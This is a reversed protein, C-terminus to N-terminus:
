DELDKFLDGPDTPQRLAERWKQSPEVPQATADLEAFITNRTERISDEINFVPAAETVALIEGDIEPVPVVPEADLDIVAAEAPKDVLLERVEDLSVDDPSITIENAPLEKNCCYKPIVPEFEDYDLKDKVTAPPPETAETFDSRSYEETYAIPQLEGESPETDV